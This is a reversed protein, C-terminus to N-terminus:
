AQGRAYSDNRRPNTRWRTPRAPGVRILKGEAPGRGARATASPRVCTHLRGPASPEATGPAFENMVGLLVCGIHHSWVSRGPRSGPQGETPALQMPKHADDALLEFKGAWIQLAFARAGMQSGVLCGDVKRDSLRPAALWFSSALPPARLCALVRGVLDYRSSSTVRGPTGPARGLDLAPERVSKPARM